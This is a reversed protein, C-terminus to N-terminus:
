CTFASNSPSRLLLDSPDIFFLGSCSNLYNSGWNRLAKTFPNHQALDTQLNLMVVTLLMVNNHAYRLFLHMVWLIHILTTVTSQMGYIILYWHLVCVSQLVDGKQFLLETSIIWQLLKVCKYVSLQSAKENECSMLSWKSCM